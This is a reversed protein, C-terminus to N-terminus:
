FIPTTTTTAEHIISYAGQTWNNNNNYTSMLKPAQCNIIENSKIYTEIPRLADALTQIIITWQRDILNLPWFEM